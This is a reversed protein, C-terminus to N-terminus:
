ITRPEPSRPERLRPHQCPYSPGVFTLARCDPRLCRWAEVRLSAPTLARVHAWGNQRGVSTGSVATPVTTRTSTAPTSPRM